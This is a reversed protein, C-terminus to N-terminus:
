TREALYTLLYQALYTREACKVNLPETLYMCQDNGLGNINISYLHLLEIQILLESRLPFMLM